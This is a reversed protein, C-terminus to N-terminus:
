HAHCLTRDTAYASSEPQMVTHTIGLKKLERRLHGLVDEVQLLSLHDAMVLHVSLYIEGSRPQSLHLDHYGQVANGDLLVSRIQSEEIDTLNAGMLSFFSQKLIPYTEKLIYLSFAVAFLADIAHIGFFYIAAGGAIVGLSVLADAVMHWYASRINLDDHTHDHDHDHNHGHHHGGGVKRLLYASFTNAILAVFAVIMMYEPLVEEPEVLRMISAYILFALTVILFLANVFAAMMEARLFGFTYRYTPRRNGLVLAIYTVIVALADALNHFADTILAISNALLGFFIEAAVIALNLGIVLMISRTRANRM